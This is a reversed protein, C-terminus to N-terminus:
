GRPRQTEPDKAIRASSADPFAEQLGVEDLNYSLNKVFLVSSSGREGSCYFTNWLLIWVLSKHLSFFKWEVSKLVFSNLLIQGFTSYIVMVLISSSLILQISHVAPPLFIFANLVSLDLRYLEGGWVIGHFFIFIPAFIPFFSSFLCYIYQLKYIYVLFILAYVIVEM